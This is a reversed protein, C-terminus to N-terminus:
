FFFLRYKVAITAWRECNITTDQTNTHYSKSGAKLMHWCNFANCDYWNFSNKNARRKKSNLRVKVTLGENEYQGPQKLLCSHRWISRHFWLSWATVSWGTRMSKKSFNVSRVCGKASWVASATSISCVGQMGISRALKPKMTPQTLELWQCRGTSCQM